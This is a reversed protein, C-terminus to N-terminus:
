GPGALERDRLPSVGGTWPGIKARIMIRSWLGVVGGTWPDKDPSWVTPELEDVGGTRSAMSSTERRASGRGDCVCVVGMVGCCGGM